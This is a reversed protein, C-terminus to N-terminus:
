RKLTICRTKQLAVCYGKNATLVVKNINMDILWTLLDVHKLWDHYDEPWGTDYFSQLITLKCSRSRPTYLVYKWKKHYQIAWLYGHSTSLQRIHRLCWYRYLQTPQLCISRQLMAQRKWTETLCDTPQVWYGQVKDRCNRSWFWLWQLASTHNVTCRLETHILFVM